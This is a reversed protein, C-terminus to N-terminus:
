QVPRLTGDTRPEMELFTMTGAYQGQGDFGAFLLRNQWIAAKPVSKCPIIPDDPKQWGTFPERSYRYEGKGHHSFVLYHWGDLVFYDPCEPENDEDAVYIPELETWQDLNESTLHALCGKGASLLTTTVFMHYSGDAAQVVKPDRASAANYRSSLCFSFSPDKSFHYGDASVSRRLPAPSGDFTRVTYFLYQRDGHAMWSGTCISAEWPDDIEVALPHIQWHILDGTSIHAWQHAGRWWKSTHRHRDKLYLVHYRGDHSYPMCDGVFVSEEPQWGEANEFTGLVSPLQKDPQPLPHISWESGCILDRTLFRNGCPWEEDQLAGDIWLEIRYPRLHLEAQANLRAKGRLTLPAPDATYWLSVSLEEEKLAIRLAPQNETANLCIEQEGIPFSLVFDEFSHNM